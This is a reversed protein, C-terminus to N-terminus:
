WAYRLGFDFLTSDVNDGSTQTFGGFLNWNASLRGDLRVALYSLSFDESQPALNLTQFGVIPQISLKHEMLPLYASFRVGYGDVTKAPLNYITVTASADRWDFLGMRTVGLRWYPDYDAAASDIYSVEESLRLNWPISQDSGVWYRWYGRDFFREDVFSLLDREARNDPREWHDLGARMSVASTLKYVGYTDLRTLRTGTRTEAAGVDFSVEATSYVSLQPNLDARQDLLLALRDAKGEYLSALFGATAMYYHNGRDGTEFTGYGAALPENVSADLDARDPKFGTIAGIRVHESQRFQTQVGDVYGIGPLERPLFRGFRLFEGDGDLPRQFSAMYLDLRPDQYDPHSRYAEGDRYAIDGSWEFSWPSGGIRDLSGSSGLHSVSYDLGHENDTQLMQRINMQGHFVNSARPRGVVWSPPALLPVFDSELPQAASAQGKNTNPDNAPQTDNNNSLNQEFSLEVPRGALKQKAAPGGSLRLLASKGAAHLVEFQLVQGDDLRLTGFFGKQLGDDSGKDVYIGDSIEYTIRASLVVEGAQAFTLPYALFIMVCFLLRWPFGRHEALTKYNHTPCKM